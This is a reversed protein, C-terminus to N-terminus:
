FQPGSTGISRLKKSVELEDVGDGDIASIMFVNSFNSWGPEKPTVSKLKTMCVSYEEHINSQEIIEDENGDNPSNESTEESDSEQDTNSDIVDSSSDENDNDEQSETLSKQSLSERNSDTDSYAQKNPQNLAKKLDKTARSPKYIWNRGDVQSKDKNKENLYKEYRDFIEKMKEKEGKEKPIRQQKLKKTTLSQGDVVGQTLVDTVNLLVKKNKM